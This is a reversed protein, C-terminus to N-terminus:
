SVAERVEALTEYADTDDHVDLPACVAYGVGAERIADFHRTVETVTGHVLNPRSGYRELKAEAEADTRGILVQGGWTVPFDPRGSRARVDAVESVVEAPSAGWIDLGDACDAAVQRLEPSRGGAWATVGQDRVSRCVRAVAALRVAAKEYPVGFAENEPKSLRDGAGVGAIM